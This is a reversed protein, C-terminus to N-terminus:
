RSRLTVRNRFPTSSVESTNGSTVPYVTFSIEVARIETESGAPPPCSIQCPNLNVRESTLRKVSIPAAMTGSGSAIYTNPPSGQTKCEFFAPTDNADVYDVYQSVDASGACATIRNASRITSAMTNMASNGSDKLRRSVDAKRATRLSALLVSVVAISVVSFLGLVIIMEILTFGRRKTKFKSYQNNIIKM